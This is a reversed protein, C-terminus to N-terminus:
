APVFCFRIVKGGIKEIIIIVKLVKQGEWHGGCGGAHPDGHLQSGVPELGDLGGEAWPQPCLM